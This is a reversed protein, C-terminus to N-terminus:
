LIVASRANLRPAPYAVNMHKHIAATRAVAFAQPAALRRAVWADGVAEAEARVRVRVWVEV